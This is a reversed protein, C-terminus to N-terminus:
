GKKDYLYRDHQTSADPLRGPGAEQGLQRFVRWAAQVQAADPQLLRVTVQLQTHPVAALTQRVEEPMSLHGDPLVEGVYEIVGNM